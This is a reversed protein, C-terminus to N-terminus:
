AKTLAPCIPTSETFGPSANNGHRVNPERMFVNRRHRLRKKLCASPISARTFSCLRNKSEAIVQRKRFLTMDVFCRSIPRSSLASPSAVVCSDNVLALAYLEIALIGFAARFRDAYRPRQLIESQRNLDYDSRSGCVQMAAHQINQKRRRSLSIAFAHYAFLCECGRAPFQASHKQLARLRASTAAFIHHKEYEGSICIFVLLPM